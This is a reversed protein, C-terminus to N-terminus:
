RFPPLVMGTLNRTQSAEPWDMAVGAATKAPVPPCNVISLATRACIVMTLSAEAFSIGSAANLHSADPWCHIKLIPVDLRSAAVAYVNLILRAFPDM